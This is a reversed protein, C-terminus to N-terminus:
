LVAYIYRRKSKKIRDIGEITFDIETNSPPEWSSANKYTRFRNIQEVLHPTYYNFQSVIQQEKINQINQYKSYELKNASFLFVSIIMLVLISSYLAFKNVAKRQIGNLNFTVRSLIRM